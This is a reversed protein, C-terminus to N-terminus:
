MKRKKRKKKRFFFDKENKKSQKTRLKYKNEPLNKEKLNKKRKKIEELKISNRWIFKNLKWEQKLKKGETETKNSKLVYSKIKKKKYKM